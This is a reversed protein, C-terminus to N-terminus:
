YFHRNGHSWLDYEYTIRDKILDYSRADNREWKRQIAWACYDAVQVCPDASAACFHTTCRGPVIQAMVEEIANLFATREKGTGLSAATVLLDPADGLFPNVLPNTGHCFHYFWGYKYFRARSMRVRPYAKSKEMVTAQIRFDYERITDFVRDRVAQQDATCHFSDRKLIGSITLERRLTLLDNGVDCADMCVTCLIFYRSINQGRAFEFDGAEDAFIYLNPM